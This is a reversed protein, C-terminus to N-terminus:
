KTNACRPVMSEDAGDGDRREVLVVDCSAQWYSNVSLTVELLLHKRINLPAITCPPFVIPQFGDLIYRHVILIPYYRDFM